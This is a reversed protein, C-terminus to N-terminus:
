WQKGHFEGHFEGDIMGNIEGIKQSDLRGGPLLVLIRQDEQGVQSGFHTFIGLVELHSLALCPPPEIIFKEPPCFATINIYIYM